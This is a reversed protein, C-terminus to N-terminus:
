MAESVDTAYCASDAAAWSCVGGGGGGGGGLRRRIARTACPITAGYTYVRARACVYACVSQKRAQKIVAEDRPGKHRSVLLGVVRDEPKSIQM